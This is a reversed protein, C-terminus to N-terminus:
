TVWLCWTFLSYFQVLYLYTCWMSIIMNTKTSHWQDPCVTIQWVLIVQVLKLSNWLYRRIQAFQNSWESPQHSAQPVSKLRELLVDHDVTDLGNSLDLRILLASKNDDIAGFIDDLVCTLTTETSHFKGHSFQLEEYLNNKTMHSHLRSVVVKKLLSQFISWIQFLGSITLFTM